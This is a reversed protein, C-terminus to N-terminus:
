TRGFLKGRETVVIAVLAIVAAAFFGTITPTVTGDFLSDIVMGVLTAGLISVTGIVASATGAVAGLNAM